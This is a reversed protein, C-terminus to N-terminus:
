HAINKSIAVLLQNAWLTYGAASPHFGDAALMAAILTDPSSVFVAKPRALMQKAALLNLQAAKVGLWGNLPTPLASFHQMPPIASFLLLPNGNQQKLLSLCQTLQRCFRRASCLSTVDNVGISLVVVDFCQGNLKALLAALATSDLGTQAELQWHVRYHPALLSVLQGSLADDQTTVGVGAAASDGCILLRLPPLQEDGSVGARRGAAEPLRLALKHM